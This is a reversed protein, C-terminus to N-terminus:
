LHLAGEVLCGPVRQSHPSTITCIGARSCMRGLLMVSSLPSIRCSVFLCSTFASFLLGVIISITLVVSVFHISLFRRTVCYSVCHFRQVICVFGFSVSCGIYCLHLHPWALDARFLCGLRGRLIQVGPVMGVLISFRLRGLGREWAFFCLVLLALVYDRRICSSKLKINPDQCKMCPRGNDSAARCYILTCQGALAM